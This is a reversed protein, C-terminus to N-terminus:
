FKISSVDKRTIKTYETGKDKGKDNTTINRVYEVTELDSFNVVEPSEFARKYVLKEGTFALGDKGSGFLTSALLAIVSGITDELNMSKAANNLKKEPIDPAIHLGNHSIQRVNEKIFVNINYM